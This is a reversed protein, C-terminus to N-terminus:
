LKGHSIKPWYVDYSFHPSNEADHCGVCTAPSVPTLPAKGASAVHASAPGHCSECTVAALETRQDRRFWGDPKGLGTVHCRLCDPDADYGKATLAALAHAHRSTAHTASAQPHCGACASPGAYAPDGAAREIRSDAQLTASAITRQLTIVRQRMATDEPIDETLLQYRCTDDGFTWWGLAKGHNAQHIIRTQGVAVATQSPSSVDGGVIVAIAPVARALESLGAEDLDALVVLRTGAATDALRVLAEVADDVVLGEGVADAPVISTVTFVTASGTANAPLEITCRVSPACILTGAKDRLNACVLPLPAQAVHAALTTRGLAVEARGLGVAAVKAAALGALYADSHLRQHDAAGATWGGGELSLTRAVDGRRLLTLRRLLGGHMGASCGCPEFRGATHTAWAIQPSTAEVPSSTGTGTGSNSDGCATLLVLTLGLFFNNSWRMCWRM